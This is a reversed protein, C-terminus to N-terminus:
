HDWTFPYLEGSKIKSWNWSICLYYYLGVCLSDVNQMRTPNQM